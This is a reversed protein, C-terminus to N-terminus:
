YFESKHRVSLCPAMALVASAYCRATFVSHHHALTTIQRSRRASKGIALSISSGSVSEQKLLIRIPEVPVPEGPYDPCLATLRTHTACKQVCIYIAESGFCSNGRRFDSMTFYTVSITLCLAAARVIRCFCRATRVDQSLTTEPAWCLHFVFKKIDARM